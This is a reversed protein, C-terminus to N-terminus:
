QFDKAKVSPAIATLLLNRFARWDDASLEARLYPLNNAHSTSLPDATRADLLTVVHDPEIDLAEALAAVDRTAVMTKFTEMDTEGLREDIRRVLELQPERIAEILNEQEQLTIAARAIITQVGSPSIESEELLAVARAQSEPPGDLREALIEFALWLPVLEPTLSGDLFFRLRHERGKEIPSVTRAAVADRYRALNIGPDRHAMRLETPTVRDSLTWWAPSSAPTDTNQLQAAATGALALFALCLLLHRLARLRSFAGTPDASPPLQM